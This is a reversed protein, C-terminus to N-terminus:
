SILAIGGALARDATMLPAGARRALAVYIADGITLNARLQWADPLLSKTSVRLTALTLIRNLAM